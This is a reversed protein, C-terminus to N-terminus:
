RRHWRMWGVGTVEAGTRGEPPPASGDSSADEDLRRYSRAGAPASESDPKDEDVRDIEALAPVPSPSSFRQFM